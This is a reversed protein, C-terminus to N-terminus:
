FKIKVDLSQKHIVDVNWCQIFIFYKFAKHINKCVYITFSDKCICNFNRMVDSCQFSSHSPYKIPPDPLSFISKM